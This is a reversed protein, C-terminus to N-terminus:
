HFCIILGIRVIRIQKSDDSVVMKGGMNGSFTPAGSFVGDTEAFVFSESMKEALNLTVGSFTVTGRDPSADLSVGHAFAGAVVATCIACLAVYRM